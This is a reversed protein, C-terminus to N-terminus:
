SANTGGIIVNDIRLTPVGINGFFPVMRLDSGVQTVNQLFDGLTTAITVGNVPGAIEGNEIWLGSAAMSCDGTVPDIGGTQMVNLVYFGKDVSKIMEEPTVNGPQMYFNSPQLQPLSRHGARQANGTSQVGAKRASYSDYILNQLVGEDILRTARTPVGEGDFPASGLGRKMRGNDMLTVMDSAVTQGMKDLLFSRQKQWAEATLAAALTGVIQAGVVPDLIVTGTQTAVPQGGLMSVAKRGAEEGIADADLQSFYNSAGLGIGSTMGGAEDRAFAYLFGVCVTQGYQGAFGKSNALYMHSIGDQYTCANTMVVRSDYNLAAREIRKALAIKDDTAVEVLSQDWIELDDDPIPQPEPLARYEDPTAVAALELATRWTKEISEDSFDSTYAYGTRGAEIVRVGMGRSDSQSLKEVEGRDVRIETERSETIIVEVEASSSEAARKVVAQALELYNTM